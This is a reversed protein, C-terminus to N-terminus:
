GNGHGKGHGKGKGNGSSNDDSNGTNGQPPASVVIRVATLSQGDAGPVGEVVVRDGQVLTPPAGVVPTTTGSIVTTGSIPATGSIVTTGSITTTGSIPTTVGTGGEDQEHQFGPMEVWKTTGTTTVTITQGFQSLMTFGTGNVSQVTGRVKPLLVWVKSAAFTHTSKDFHGLVRVTLGVQVAAQTAPAGAEMFVTNSSTSSTTSTTSISVTVTLPLAHPMDMTWGTATVTAVVGTVQSLRTGHKAANGFAHGLGNGGRHGHSAAHVGDVAGLATASVLVAALVRRGIYM